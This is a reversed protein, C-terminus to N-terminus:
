KDGLLNTTHETVSGVPVGIEATTVRTPGVVPIPDQQPPPLAHEYQVSGFTTVPPATPLISTSDDSVLYRLARLLYPSIVLLVVFTVLVSLLLTNTQMRGATFLSAFASLLTSIFM